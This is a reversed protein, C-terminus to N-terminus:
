VYYLKRLREPEVAMTNSDLYKKLVLLLDNAKERSTKPRSRWEYYAARSVDLICCMATVKFENQAKIWAYKM